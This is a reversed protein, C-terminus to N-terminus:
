SVRLLSKSSSNFTQKFRRIGGRVKEAGSTSGFERQPSPSRVGKKKRGSKRKKKPSVSGSRGTSRPLTGAPTTDTSDLPDLKKKSMNRSGTRFLTNTSASSLPKTGLNSGDFTENHNDGDRRLMPVLEEINEEYGLAAQTVDWRLM